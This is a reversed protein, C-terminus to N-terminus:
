DVLNPVPCLHQQQAVLCCAWYAFRPKFDEWGKTPALLHDHSDRADVGFECPYIACRSLCILYWVLYSTSISTVAHGLMSAICLFCRVLKCFHIEFRCFNAHFGNLM